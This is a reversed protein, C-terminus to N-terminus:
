NRGFHIERLPILINNVRRQKFIEKFLASNCMIIAEIEQPLKNTYFKREIRSETKELKSIEKM